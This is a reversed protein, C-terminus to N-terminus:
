DFSNNRKKRKKLFTSPVQDVYEDDYIAPFFDDALDAGGSTPAATGPMVPETDLDIEAQILEGTTLDKWIRISKNRTIIRTLYQM